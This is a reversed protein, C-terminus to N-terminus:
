HDALDVVEVLHLAGHIRRHSRATTPVPMCLRKAQDIAPVIAIMSRVIQKSDKIEPCLLKMYIDVTTLEALVEPNDLSRGTVLAAADVLVIGGLDGNNVDQAQNGIDIGRQPCMDGKEMKAAIIDGHGLPNGREAHAIDIPM